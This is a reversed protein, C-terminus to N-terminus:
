VAAGAFADDFEEIRPAIETVEFSGRVVDITKLGDGTICLVVREDAGIDGREALKALTATTVGGATETFIGTTEALLRIGARIEDDTVSDIGGGTKQALEVAYPGDAPNGIALSKAITDPKVPRCVPTGAAFAQAM